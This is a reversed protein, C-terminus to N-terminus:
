AIRAQYLHTVQHKMGFHGSGTNPAMSAYALVTDGVQLASTESGPTNYPHEMHVVKYQGHAIPSLLLLLLLTINYPRIHHSM